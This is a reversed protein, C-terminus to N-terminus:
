GIGMVPNNRSWAIQNGQRDCILKYRGWKADFAAFAKVTGTPNRSISIRCKRWAARAYDQINSWILGTVFEHRWLEAHFV